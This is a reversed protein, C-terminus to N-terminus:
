PMSTPLLKKAAEIIQGAYRRTQSSLGNEGLTDKLASLVLKKDPNEIINPRGFAHFMDQIVDQLFEGGPAPGTAIGDRRDARFQIGAQLEHSTLFRTLGNGAIKDTVRVRLEAYTRWVEQYSPISHASGNFKEHLAPGLFYKPSQTIFGTLMRASINEDIVSPNGGKALFLQFASTEAGLEREYDDKTAGTAVIGRLRQDIHGIEHMTTIFNAADQPAQMRVNKVNTCVTNAFDQAPSIKLSPRMLFFAPGEPRDNTGIYTVNASFNEAPTIAIKDPDSISPCLNRLHRSVERVRSTLEIVSREDFVSTRFNPLDEPRMSVVPIYGFMASIEQDTPEKFIPM